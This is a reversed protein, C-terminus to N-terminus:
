SGDGEDVVREDPVDEPLGDAGPVPDAPTRIDARAQERLKEEETLEIAEHEDTV